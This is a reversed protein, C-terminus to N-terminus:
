NNCFLYEADLDFGPSASIALFNRQDNCNQKREKVVAIRIEFSIFCSAADPEHIYRQGGCVM